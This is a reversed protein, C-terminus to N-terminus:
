RSEAAALAKSLQRALSQVHPPRLINHHAGDILYTDVGHTTRGWGFDDDAVRLLSMTAVRFLAVRGAYPGPRYYNFADSHVNLLATQQAAIIDMEDIIEAADENNDLAHWERRLGREVDTLRALWTTRDWRRTVENRVWSPLNCAFKWLGAPTVLGALADRRSLAYGEFIAVLAVAQGEAQLRRAMEYALIGGQCYGGLSYPGVPQQARVAAVYREVMAEITRDPEREDELGVAQIGLVPRRTGLARALDIYGLVGGGFGHVLFFPDGTGTPQLVKLLEHAVPLTTTAPAGADIWAALQAITPRALFEETTLRVAFVHEIQAALRMLTLSDAGAEVLDSATSTIPLGLGDRALGLLRAETDTVANADPQVAEPEAPLALLAQRDVKGNPTLPLREVFVFRAPVMYAPVRAQMFARLDASSTACSSTIFAILQRGSAGDPAALVVADAVVPHQMLAQKVESLEVRNGRIKVQDDRRGLHEIEGSPWRRALDGTRFARESRGAVVIEVFREATADPLNHYGRAVHPGVVFLEGAAGIPAVRRQPDLIYIRTNAVPRGIFIPANLDVPARVEFATVDGAVESSGYLNLLRARPLREVFRAALDAALAEGSSVCIRLASLRQELQQPADLIARLLSPVVVLRSVSHRALVATFAGIDRVTKHDVVVLPRGQLLPGFVESVSDVFNLTTTHCGVEDTGFPYEAWMWRLRNLTAGHTGLVGKPTGTSGSTYLLYLVDEAAADSVNPPVADGPTEGPSIPDDATIPRAVRGALQAALDARTVAIACGSDQIMYSLRDVPYSPDLPVTVGRAMLIALWAIVSETSRPLHLGIPDGPRAGAAILRNALRLAATRLHGFTLVQEGEIVAPDAAHAWTIDLFLARLTRNDGFDRTTANWTGVLLASEDPPLVDVDVLRQHPDTLISDVTRAVQALLRAAAPEDVRARDFQLGLTTLGSRRDDLTLVPVDMATAACPDLCLGGAVSGVSAPGMPGNLAVALDALWALLSQTGRIQVDLPVPRPSTGHWLALRLQDSGLYRSLALAWSATVILALNYSSGALAAHWARVVLPIQCCALGTGAHFVLSPLTM